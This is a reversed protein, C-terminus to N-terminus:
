EDIALATFSDLGALYQRQSKVAFCFTDDNMQPIFLGKQLEEKTKGQAGIYALDLALLVNYPSICLNGNTAKIKRYLEQSFRNQGDVFSLEDCFLPYTTFMYLLCSIILKKM